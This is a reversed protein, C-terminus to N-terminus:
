ENDSIEQYASFPGLFWLKGTFRAVWTLEEVPLGGFDDYKDQEDRDIIKAGEPVPLAFFDDNLTSQVEVLDCSWTEREHVVYPVKACEACYLDWEAGQQSLPAKPKKGADRDFKEVVTISPYWSGPVVERIESTTMIEDPVRSPPADPKNEDYGHWVQIKVPVAGRTMDLWARHYYYHKSRVQLVPVEVVLLDRSDVAETRVIKYNEPSQQFFADIPPCDHSESDVFSSFSPVPLNGYRHYHKATVQTYEPQDGNMIKGHPALLPSWSFFSIDKYTTVLTEATLPGSPFAWKTPKFGDLHNPKRIQYAEGKQFLEVYDENPSPRKALSQFFKHQHKMYSLLSDYTFGAPLQPNAKNFDERKAKLVFKIMREQHEADRRFKERYADTCEEVHHLQVHLPDLRQRNARYTELVESVTPTAAESSSPLSLMALAVVAMLLRRWM